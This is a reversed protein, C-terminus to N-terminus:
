AAVEKIQQIEQIRKVEESARLKARIAAEYRSKAADFAREADEEADVCGAWYKVAADLEEAFFGVTGSYEAHQAAQYEIDNIEAHTFKSLPDIAFGSKNEARLIEVETESYPWEIGNDPEAQYHRLTVACEVLYENCHQDTFWFRIQKPKENKMDKHM